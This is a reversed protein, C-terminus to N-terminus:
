IQNLLNKVFDKEGSLIIKVNKNTKMFKFEVQKESNNIISCIKESLM